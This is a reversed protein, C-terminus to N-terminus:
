SQSMMRVTENVEDNDPNLADSVATIDEDALHDYNNILLTWGVSENLPPMDDHQAFAMGKYKSIDNALSNLSVVDHLDEPAQEPEHHFGIDYKIAQPLNWKEVILMGAEMHDIGFIDREVQYMDAQDNSAIEYCEEYLKGDLSRLVLHGIDHLLGLAHVSESRSLRLEKRLETAIYATAASHKWLKRRDIVDSERDSGLTKAVSFVLAIVILEKFGIVIVAQHLSEIEKQMAYFASNATKLIKVALSPDRNIIPVIQGVSLNDARVVQQLELAVEPLTPLGVLSSIQERYYDASPRAGSQTKLSGSMAMEM